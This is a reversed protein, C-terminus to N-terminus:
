VESLTLIEPIGREKAFSLLRACEANCEGFTKCAAYLKGARSLEECARAAAEETVRSFAPVSFVKQALVRAVQFDVDNEPFIGCSFPFAAGKCPASSPFARAAARWSSCARKGRRSKWSWVASCPTIRATRCATCHASRKKASCRKPRARWASGTGKWASSRTRSRQPSTSSTCPSCSSCKASPPSGACFASFKSKIASTWIPFHTRGAGHDAAAPLDRAGPARAPAPGDSIASFSREALPEAGVMLLSERVVDRDKPTLKGFFDTYPYRGAEVVEECTMRETKLRETLVVSVKEAFQRDSLSKTDAGDVYVRGGLAQLQRTLSKLITSKGAGNRGILTVVEGANLSLSIGGILVKGGYGVSLGEASLKSM